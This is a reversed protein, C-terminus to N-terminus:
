AIQLFRNEEERIRIWPTKSSIAGLSKYHERSCGWLSPNLYETM